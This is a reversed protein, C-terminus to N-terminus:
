AFAVGGFRKHTVSALLSQNFENSAILASPPIAIEMAAAVADKVDDHPPNQMVLEDELIQCNGGRYHYVQGNAYKPQLVAELREEKKGQHRTPTGEVVSLALGYPRIYNDKL